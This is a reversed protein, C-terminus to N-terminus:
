EVNIDTINLPSSDYTVKDYKFGKKSTIGVEITHKKSNDMIIMESTKSKEFVIYDVKDPSYGKQPFGKTYITTKGGYTSYGNMPKVQFKKGGLVFDVGKRTDIKSGPCFNFIGDVNLGQKIKDFVKIERVIGDSLTNINLKILEEFEPSKLTENFYYKIFLIFNEETEEKKRIKRYEELLKDLVYSNTNFFNIISWNSQPLKYEDSYNTFTYIGIVGDNTYCDMSPNDATGYQKRPSFVEKKLKNFLNKFNESNKLSDSTLVNKIENEDDFPLELQNNDESLLMLNKIRSVESLINNGMM